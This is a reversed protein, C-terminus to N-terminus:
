RAYAVRRVERIVMVKVQGPYQMEREIKKSIDTALQEALADSVLDHNVLVRVERGAQIAYVRDVGRFSAALSELKELRKVYAEVSERRAGPRAGSIADAAQVLPSILATMEIEDHHAGVANLVDPHEKYRTLLEMGVLAHPQEIEEEMVKGIDHLLGARRARAADLGLEAAMLSALKATEISHSLLNQGYSTRYRMRGVMRVLDPHLGHLQLDIVTTEGAELIEEEIESRVKEVVEEIRAPHIRGDALLKLLAIRGVERRVADFSSLIVAEPTEDVIVELGTAAEFSRINRGERGIIRGKMEESAIQVVSVTTEIAHTAATRQIATAIVQKAERTARMRADDRIEKVHQAAETRVEDLLEQKLQERADARSLGAIGELRRTLADLETGYRAREADADAVATHLRTETAAIEVQRQEADRALRDAEDRRARAESHLSQLQGHLTRAKQQVVDAERRLADLADQAKLLVGERQQLQQARAGVQQARTDLKQRDRRLAQREDDVEHTLEDRLRAREAEAATALDGRLRTLEADLQTARAESDHRAADAERLQRDASPDPASPRRSRLYWGAFFAVVAVGVSLAIAAPTM